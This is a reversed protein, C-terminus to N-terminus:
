EAALHTNTNEELQCTLYLCREEVECVECAPFQSYNPVFLPNYILHAMKFSSRM